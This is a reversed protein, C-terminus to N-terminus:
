TITWNIHFRVIQSLTLTLFCNNSWKLNSAGARCWDIQSSLTWHMFVLIKAHIIDVNRWFITAAKKLNTRIKPRLQFYSIQFFFSSSEALMSIAQYKKRSFMINHQRLNGEDLDSTTLIRTFCYELRSRNQGSAIQSFTYTNRIYSRKNITTTSMRPMFLAYIRLNFLFSCPYFRYFLINRTPIHHSLTAIKITVVSFAVTNVFHVVYNEWKLGFSRYKSGAPIYYKLLM